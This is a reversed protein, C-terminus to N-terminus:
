IFMSRANTALEDLETSKMIDEVSAFSSFEIDVTPTIGYSKFTTKFTNMGSSHGQISRSGVLGVQFITPVSFSLTTRGVKTWGYYLIYKTVARAIERASTLAVTALSKYLKRDELQDDGSMHAIIPVNWRTVLRGIVLMEARVSILV